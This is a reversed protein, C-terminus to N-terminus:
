ENARGLVMEKKALWDKDLAATAQGSAATTSAAQGSASTAFTPSPPDNTLHLKLGM